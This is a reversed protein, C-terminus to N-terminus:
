RVARRIHTELPFVLYSFYSLPNEQIAQYEEDSKDVVKYLKYDRYENRERKEGHDQVHRAFGSANKKGVGTNGRLKSIDTDEEFFTAKRGNLTGIVM